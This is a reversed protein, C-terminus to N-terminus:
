NVSSSRSKVKEDIWNDIESEIWGASRATLKIQEPFAQVKILRYISAQSLSTKICVEPLKLIKM